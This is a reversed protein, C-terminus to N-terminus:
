KLPASVEAVSPPPAHLGEWQAMMSILALHVLYAPPRDYKKSLAQLRENQSTTLRAWVRVTRVRDKPLKQPM